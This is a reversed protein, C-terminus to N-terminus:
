GSKVWGIRGCSVERKGRKTVGEEEEEEEEKCEWPSQERIQSGGTSARWGEFIEMAGITVTSKLRPTSLSIDAM